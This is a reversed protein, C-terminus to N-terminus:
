SLTTKKKFFKKDGKKFKKSPIKKFRKKKYHHKQTRRKRSNLNCGYNEVKDQLKNCCLSVQAEKKAIKQSCKEM